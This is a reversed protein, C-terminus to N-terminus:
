AMVKNYASILAEAVLNIQEDSINYFVPLTIERKFNDYATPYNEISYGM